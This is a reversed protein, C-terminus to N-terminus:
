WKGQAKLASARRAEMQGGARCVYGRHSQSQIDSLCSRINGRNDPKPSALNSSVIDKVEQQRRGIEAKALRALKAAKRERALKRRANRSIAM